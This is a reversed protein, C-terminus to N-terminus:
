RRASPAGCHKPRSCTAVSADSITLPNRREGAAAFDGKFDACWVGNPADEGRRLKRWGRRPHKNRAAVMLQVVEASVAHPHFHPARSQDVLAGWTALKTANNGSTARNEALESASVLEV